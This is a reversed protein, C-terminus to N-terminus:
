HLILMESAYKCSLVHIHLQLLEQFYFDSFLLRCKHLMSVARQMVKNRLFAHESNLTVIGEVNHMLIHDCSYVDELSVQKQHM